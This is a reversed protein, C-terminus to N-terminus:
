WSERNFARCLTSEFHNAGTRWRGSTGPRAPPEGCIACRRVRRANACLLSCCRVLMGADGLAGPSWGPHGVHLGYMSHSSVLAVCTAGHTIEVSLQWCSWAVSGVAALRAM